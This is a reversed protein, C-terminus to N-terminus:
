FAPPYVSIKSSYSQDCNSKTKLVFHHHLQYVLFDNMQFFFKKQKTTNTDALFICWINNYKFYVKNKTHFIANNIHLYKHFYLLITALYKIHRWYSLKEYIETVYEM